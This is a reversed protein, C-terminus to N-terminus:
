LVEESKTGFASLHCLALLGVPTVSAGKNKDTVGIM